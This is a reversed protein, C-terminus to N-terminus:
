VECEGFASVLGLFFVLDQKVAGVRRIRRHVGHLDVHNACFAIQGPFFSLSDIKDLAVGQPNTVRHGPFWPWGVKFAM